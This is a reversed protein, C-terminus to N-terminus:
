EDAADSTYLLCDKSTSPFIVKYRGINDSYTNGSYEFKITHDYDSLPNAKWDEGPAGKELVRNLPSSEFLQETYPNPTVSNIESPFKASYYTNISSLLTSQNIIDLAGTSLVTYTPLYEKAQRGLPDYIIPTVIHEKNGGAQKAISQKPRGLGDYYTIGEIKEDDTLPQQTVANTTGNQTKVQYTTSQVYNETNTQGMVLSSICVAALTYLLKKM